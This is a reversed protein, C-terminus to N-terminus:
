LHLSVLSTLTYCISASHSVYEATQPFKNQVYNHLPWKCDAYLIMSLVFTSFRINIDKLTIKNIYNAIFM